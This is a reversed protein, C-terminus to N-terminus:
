LQEMKEYFDKKARCCMNCPYMSKFYTVYKCGKCCDPVTWEAILHFTERVPLDNDDCFDVVDDDSMCDKNLEYFEHVKDKQEKTM